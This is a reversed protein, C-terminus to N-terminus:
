EAYTSELPSIVWLTPREDNLTELSISQAPLYSSAGQFSPSTPRAVIAPAILKIPSIDGVLRFWAPFRGRAYYEPTSELDPSNVGVHSPAVVVRTCTSQYCRMFGTDFLIIPSPNDPGLLQALLERPVTEHKRAWWGWWVYGSQRVIRKHEAISGGPETVMDRFRLLLIHQPSISDTM